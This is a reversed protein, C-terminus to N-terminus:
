SEDLIVDSGCSFICPWLSSKALIVQTSESIVLSHFANQWPFFSAILHGRDKRYTGGKILVEEGKSHYTPENKQKVWHNAFKQVDSDHLLSTFGCIVPGM